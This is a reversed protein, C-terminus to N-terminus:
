QCAEACLQNLLSGVANLSFGAEVDERARRAKGEAVTRNSYAERLLAALHEASPEAWRQGAATHVTPLAGPPVEVPRSTIIYSNDDTMFASSASWRVGSVPTGSAMALLSGRGWPDGRSPNVYADAARYYGPLSDYRIYGVN